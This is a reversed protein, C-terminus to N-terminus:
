QAVRSRKVKSVHQRLQASSNRGRVDTINLCPLLPSLAPLFILSLTRTLFAQMRYTRLATRTRLQRLLLWLKQVLRRNGFAYVVNRECPQPAPLRQRPRGLSWTRVCECIGNGHVATSLVYARGYTSSHPQCANGRGVWAGRDPTRAYTRVYMRVIYRRRVYTAVNSQCAM